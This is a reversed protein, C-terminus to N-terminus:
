IGQQVFCRPLFCELNCDGWTDSLFPCGNDNDLMGGVAEISLKQAGGFWFDTKFYIYFRAIDHKCRM